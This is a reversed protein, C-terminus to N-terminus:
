MEEMKLKADVEVFYHKNLREFGKYIRESFKLGSMGKGQKLKSKEASFVVLDIQAKSYMRNGQPDKFPTKPIVGSVEWKRVTQSTRGIAEALVSISYLKVKVGTPTTYERERSWPSLTM